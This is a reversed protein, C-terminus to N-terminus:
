LIMARIKAKMVKMRRAVKGPQCWDSVSSPLETSTFGKGERGTEWIDRAMM